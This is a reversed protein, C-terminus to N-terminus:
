EPRVVARGHVREFRCGGVAALGFQLGFQVGEEVALVCARGLIGGGNRCGEQTHRDRHSGPTARARCRRTWATRLSEITATAVIGEVRRALEADLTVFADAQLLTLAVYEAVYTAAWGAARRPELRSM